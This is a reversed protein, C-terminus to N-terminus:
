PQFVMQRAMEQLNEARSVMRLPIYDGREWLAMLDAYHSDEPFGSQGGPYVGVSTDTAGFDVIMRWSAGGGVPGINGGPNVTFPTGPAPGGTRSLEPMRTMSRIKLVNTNGWTYKGIDEGFESKLSAVAKQFSNWIIDDRTEREPTRRDDFWVAEPYERTMYELVEFVPDSRNIGTFGWSGKRKEAGWRAWEDDWVAARYVDLWRLWILPQVADVDAAFDWQGLAELIRAAFPDETKKERVVKLWVPVFESAAKDYHDYQVAKMKEITMDTGAALLDNIRSKRYRPDWMWGIYHPYGIPTPRGNASAVYGEPPNVTLPMEGSPIMSSWDYDGSAGDMPVRGQGRLRVPFQGCCFLAINGYVDAYVLNLGPAKIQRAGDLWGELNTARNMAWISLLERTPGLGTWQLSITRGERSVVPGHVTYDIELVHPAADRVPIEERIRRMQKWEGRHRYRLPDNEDVTEVFYDVADAQLNTIGWGLYDNHGIITVPSGPFGVGVINRGGVCLHSAYWIAPLQFGLHPDSCLMPKGSATKRGSVAWNNSGVTDGLLRHQPISASAAMYAGSSDPAAASLMVADLSEENVQVSVTPEEYPRELPWLEQMVQAGVKELLSGFWLDDDNGSQDWAMYKLFVMCDVPTWPAPAYGLMPPLQNQAKYEAMKANVGACYAELEARFEAPLDGSDWVAQCGRRVGLQRCFIDKALAAQGQVEALTGSARRRYLDMQWLRERAHIYGLACYADTWSGAFIHPLGFSDYWVDVKGGLGDLKIANSELGVAACAICCALLPAVLVRGM